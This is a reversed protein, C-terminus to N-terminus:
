VGPNLLIFGRIEFWLIQFEHSKAKLSLGVPRRTTEYFAQLAKSVYGGRFRITLHLLFNSILAKETNPSQMM